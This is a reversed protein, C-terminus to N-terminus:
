KTTLRRVRFDTLCKEWLVQLLIFNLGMLMKKILESVINEHLLLSCSSGITMPWNKACDSKKTAYAHRLKDAKFYVGKYNPKSKGVKCIDCFKDNILENCIDARFM